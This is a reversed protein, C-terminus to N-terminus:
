LARAEAMRGRTQFASSVAGLNPLLEQPDNVARALSLAAEYDALAGPLDGRAERIRARERRTTGEMYNPSGAECERIFEDLLQLSEDWRGLVLAFSGVQARLWRAGSADGLREAIQLGEEFLEGARRFDFSFFAQVAVNNAISGAVP